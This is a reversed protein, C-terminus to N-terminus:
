GRILVVKAVAVNAVNAANSKAHRAIIAVHENVSVDQFTAPTRTGKHVKFFKTRSVVLFTRTPGQTAAATAGKGKYKVRITISGSKGDVATVIGRVAHHHWKKNVGTKGNAAKLAAFRGAGLVAVPLALVAAVVLLSRLLRM